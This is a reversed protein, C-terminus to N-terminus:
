SKCILKGLGGFHYAVSLLVNNAPVIRSSALQAPRRGAIISYVLNVDINQNIDYGFGAAVEPKWQKKTTKHVGGFRPSSTSTRDETINLKQMVYAMGGKLLFNFGTDGFNCKAVGLVDIHQMSYNWAQRSGGPIVSPSGLTYKRKPYYTYGTEVGLKLDRMDPIAWLYGLYGRGSFGVKGTDSWQNNYASKEGPGIGTTYMMGVGGGVGVYLGPLAGATNSPTMLAAAYGSGAVGLALVAGTILLIKKM